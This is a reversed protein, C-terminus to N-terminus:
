APPALSTQTFHEGISNDQDGLVFRNGGHVQSRGHSVSM